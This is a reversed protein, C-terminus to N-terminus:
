TRPSPCSTAASPTSSRTMAVEGSTTSTVVALVVLIDSFQDLAQLRVAMPRRGLGVAHMPRPAVILRDMGAVPELDLTDGDIGAGLQRQLFMIVAGFMPDHHVAGCDHRAVVFFDQQALVLRGKDRQPHM